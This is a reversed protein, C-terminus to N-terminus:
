VLKQKKELYKTILKDIEFALEEPRIKSPVDRADKRTGWALLFGQKHLFWEDNGSGIGEGFGEIIKAVDRMRLRFGDQYFLSNSLYVGLSNKSKNVYIYAKNDMDNFVIKAVSLDLSTEVVIVCGCNFSKKEIEDRLLRMEHNKMFFGDLLDFMVQCVLEDDNNYSTKFTSLALSLVKTKELAETDKKGWKKDAPALSVKGYVDKKDVIRVLPILSQYNYRSLYNKKFLTYFSSHCFDDKDVSGKIGKGGAEIDVAIDDRGMGKGDYSAPVFMKKFTKNPYVFREIFWLSCVADLDVDQHTFLRAENKEKRQERREEYGIGLYKKHKKKSFGNRGHKVKTM